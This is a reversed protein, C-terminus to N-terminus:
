HSRQSCYRSDKTDNAMPNYDNDVSIICENYPPDLCALLSHSHSHYPPPPLDLEMGDIDGTTQPLDIDDNGGMTTIKKEDSTDPMVVLTLPTAKTLVHWMM